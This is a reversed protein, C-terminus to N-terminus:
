EKAEQAISLIINTGGRETSVGAEDATFALMRETSEDNKDAYEVALDIAVKQELSLQKM